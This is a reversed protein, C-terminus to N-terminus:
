MEKTQYIAPSKNGTNKVVIRDLKPLNVGGQNSYSKNIGSSQSIAGKLRNVASM